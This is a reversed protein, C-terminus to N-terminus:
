PPTAGGRPRGGAGGPSGLLRARGRMGREGVGVAAGRSARIAELLLRDGLSGPVRLGSAITVPDLWAEATDRGQEFARVIPACGAAQVAIMRPRRPGIWGLAEMEDFAKWMGILGTGGGTPYVIADPLTYGMQEAIEYGMTKKGEVRFPERLTSFDFWGGEGGAPGLAERMARGAEAISGPVLTVRAGYRESELVFPRPTTAPLFLRVEMGARAGYAALAAGANGASPAGAVRVGRAAAVSVAVAMGRAKFSGTPNVAEDKVFLSKLGLEDAIRRARLLPTLGEGLTIPPVDPLMEAYRWLTPERGALLDRRFAARAQELRYRALLPSGCGCMLAGDPPRAACRPCELHDFCSRVPGPAHPRPVGPRRRLRLCASGQARERRQRCVGPDAPRRHRLPRPGAQRRAVRVRDSRGEPPRLPGGRGPRGPRLLHLARAGQLVPVM